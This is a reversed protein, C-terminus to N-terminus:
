GLSRFDREDPAGARRLRPYPNFFTLAGEPAVCSNVVETSYETRLYSWQSVRENLIEDVDNEAGFVPEFQNGCLLLRSRPRIERSYAM